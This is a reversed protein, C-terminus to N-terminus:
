VTAVSVVLSTGFLPTGLPANWLLIQGRARLGASPTVIPPAKVSAAPGFAPSADGITDAAGVEGANHDRAAEADGPGSSGVHFASSTPPGVVTNTLLCLLLDLDKGEPIDLSPRYETADV